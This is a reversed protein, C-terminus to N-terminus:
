GKFALNAGSAGREPHDDCPTDDGEINEGGGAGKDRSEARGLGGHIGLAVHLGALGLDLADRARAARHRCPFIRWVVAFRGYGRRFRVASKTIEEDGM